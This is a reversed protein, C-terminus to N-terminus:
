LINQCQLQEHTPSYICGGWSGELWGGLWAGWWWGCQWVCVWGMFGWGGVGGGGVWSGELWDGKLWGVQINQHEYKLDKM